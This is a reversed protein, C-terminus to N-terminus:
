RQGDVAVVESQEPADTKAIGPHELIPRGCGREM